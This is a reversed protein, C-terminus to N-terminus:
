FQIEAEDFEIRVHAYLYKESIERYKYKVYKALM